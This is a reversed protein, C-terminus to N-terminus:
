LSIFSLCTDEGSEKDSEKEHLASRAYMMEEALPKRYKSRVDTAKRSEGTAACPAIAFSGSSKM